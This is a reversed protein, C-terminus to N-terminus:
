EHIHKINLQIIITWKDHEECQTQKQTLQETQQRSTVESITAACLSGDITVVQTHTRIALTSIRLTFYFTKKTLQWGNRFTKQKGPIFSLM